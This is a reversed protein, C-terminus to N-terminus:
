AEEGKSVGVTELHQEPDACPEWFGGVGACTGSLQRFCRFRCEISRNQCSFRMRPFRATRPLHPGGSPHARSGCWVASGRFRNENTEAAAAEGQGWLLEREGLGESSGM